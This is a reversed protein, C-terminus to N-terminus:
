RSARPPQNPDYAVGSLDVDDGLLFEDFNNPSSIEVIPNVDSPEIIVSISDTAELGGLDTARLTIAHTGPSLATATRTIGASDPAAEDLSGLLGDESSTWTVTEIDDLGNEDLVMGQFEITDVDLYANGDGPVSVVVVPGSNVVDPLNFDNHCSVALVVLLAVPLPHLPVRL